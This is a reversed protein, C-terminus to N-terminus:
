GLQCGALLPKSLLVARVARGCGELQDVMVVDILVTGQFSYM